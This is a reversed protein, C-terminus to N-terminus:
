RRWRMEEVTAAISKRLGGLKVDSHALAAEMSSVM